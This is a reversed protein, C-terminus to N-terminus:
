AAARTPAICLATVDDPHHLSGAQGDVLDKMRALVGSLGQGAGRSATAIERIWAERRERSAPSVGAPPPFANELGDTYVLLTEDEALPVVVQDFTAEGFVGLLPGSTEVERPARSSLVVPMPHGAGAITATRTASDVVGYVATAFRGSGFCSACMRTNLRALVESPELPTLRGTADPVSTTLSATLVMTLLAAPVGHGVADAIFFAAKGNGLDRLSYIDGSVFNVPRYLVAIELGPLTPVTSATFERQIAAALHLEEHMRDMELRIGGQCRHALQVERALLRVAGQREALAYLMASVHRPDADLTTFIVGHRQFSQWDGAAPLQVVAPLHRRHLGEVLRDVYSAPTGQGLAVLAVGAMPAPDDGGGQELEQLLVDLLMPRHTPTPSAPWRDLVPSLFMRQPQEFSGSTAFVIHRDSM